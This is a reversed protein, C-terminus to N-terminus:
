CIERYFDEIERAMRECTFSEAAIRAQASMSDLMGQDALLRTLAAAMAGADAPPVLLGTKEHQVIEPLSGVGTAVLPTGAHMFEVAVRSWGESGVSAVLGVDTMTLLPTINEQMGLWRLNRKIGMAEIKRDLGLRYEDNARSYAFVLIANPHALLLEAFAQLAHEHGKVWAARGLLTIVVADEPIHLQRRLEAAAEQTADAVRDPPVGGRVVRVPGSFYELDRDVVERVANSVAILGSTARGYLWRNAPHNRIPMIVHRTRVLRPMGPMRILAAAALWHDKGRHAHLINIGRARIFRRLGAVDRADALLNFRSSFNLCEHGLGRREAEGAVGYGRRLVLSVEHGHGRQCKVLDLVRGAEGVFYRASMLHMIKLM